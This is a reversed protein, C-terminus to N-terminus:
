GCDHTNRAVRTVLTRGGTRLPAEVALLPIAVSTFSEASCRSSLSKSVNKRSLASREVLTTLGGVGTDAGLADVQDAGTTTVLLETRETEFGAVERPARLADRALGTDDSDGVVRGVVFQDTGVGQGLRGDHLDVRRREPLPVLRVVALGDAPSALGLALLGGLLLLAVAHLLLLRSPEGVM